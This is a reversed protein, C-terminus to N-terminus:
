MSVASVSAIRATLVTGIGTTSTLNGGYLSNTQATVGAKRCVLSTALYKVTTIYMQLYETSRLPVIVYQYLRLYLYTLYKCYVGQSCIYTSYFTNNIFLGVYFYSAYSHVGYM